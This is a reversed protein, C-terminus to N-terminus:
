LEQVFADGLDAELEQLTNEVGEESYEDRQDEGEVSALDEDQTRDSQRDVEDYEHSSDRHPAICFCEVDGDSDFSYSRYEGRRCLREECPHSVCVCSEGM